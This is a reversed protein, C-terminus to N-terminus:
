GDAQDVAPSNGIDIGRAELLAYIDRTTQDAIKRMCDDCVEVMQGNDLRLLQGAPSGSQVVTPTHDFTRGCPYCTADEDPDSLYPNDGTSDVM